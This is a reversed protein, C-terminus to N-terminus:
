LCVLKFNLKIRRRVKKKQTLNFLYNKIDDRSLTELGRSAYFISYKKMESVYTKITNESYRKLKLQELYAKPIPTKSYTTKEAKELCCVSNNITKLASYDVNTISKFVNFVRNLNFDQKKIYWSSLSQSWRITETKKICNILVKEYPFQIIIISENRLNKPRLQITKM